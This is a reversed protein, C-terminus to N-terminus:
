GLPDLAEAILGLVEDPRERHPVHGCDLISIRVPGGSLGAMREPHATSGYEDNTGHIAHIPSRVARLADNLTWDALAPNLWTGIWADLVWPAKSGHHRALRQVQQEDEFAAKAQLLGELTRDEVFMQASITIVAKTHTPFAAAGEISMGGGVSHGLLVMHEIEFANRIIPLQSRAEDRVFDLGLKGPHPDSRGFGLRDYAITRRGTREAIRAPFDRWQDVSGLSDHLMIIPPAAASGDPRWERAFLRGNPTSIYRDRVSPRGAVKDSASVPDAVKM